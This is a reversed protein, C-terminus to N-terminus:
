KPKLLNTLFSKAKDKAMNGFKSKLSNGIKSLQVAPAQTPLISETIKTPSSINDALEKAKAKMSDYLTGNLEQSSNKYIINFIIISLVMILCLLLIATIPDFAQRATAIEENLKQEPDNACYPMTPSSGEEVFMDCYANKCVNKIKEFNSPSTKQYEEDLMYYNCVAKSIHDYQQMGKNCQKSFDNYGTYLNDWVDKRDDKSMGYYKMGPKYGYTLPNQQLAFTQNRYTQYLTQQPCFSPESSKMKSCMGGSPSYRKACPTQCFFTRQYKNGKAFGPQNYWADPLNECRIMRMILGGTAFDLVWLVTFVIAMCLFLCTWYVTIYIKYPVIFLFAIPYAILFVVVCLLTYIALIFFGLVLGILVKLFNLPNSVIKALAKAVSFLAKFVNGIAILPAFPNPFGFHEVADENEEFKELGAIKLPVKMVWRQADRGTFWNSFQVADDKLDALFTKWVNPITEVFVYQIYDEMYIEYITFNAIGGSKRLNYSKKIDNLYDNILLNLTFLEIKYQAIGLDSEYNSTKIYPQVANKVANQLVVFANFAKVLNQIKKTDITQSSGKEFYKSIKPNEYNVFITMLSLRNYSCNCDAIKTLDKYFAFIFYPDPYLEISYESKNPEIDIATLFDKIENQFPCKDESQLRNMVDFMDKIHTNMYTEFPSSHGIIGLRPYAYTYMFYVAYCVLFMIFLLILVFVSNVLDWLKDFVGSTPETVNLFQIPQQPLDM